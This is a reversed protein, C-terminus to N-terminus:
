RSFREYRGIVFGEIEIIAEADGNLPLPKHRSDHSEPRLEAGKPTLVYRKVTREVLGRMTRRVIVLDNHLPEQGAAEVVIAYSGDPFIRDMSDGVIQVAYQERSPPFAPDRLFPITALVDDNLGDVELWSGAQVRYKVPMTGSMGEVNRIEGTWPSVQGYPFREDLYGEVAGLEEVRLSREGALLRTIQPQTVGLARALGAQTKGPKQLGHAIWTAITRKHDTSMSGLELSMAYKDLNRNDTSKGWM